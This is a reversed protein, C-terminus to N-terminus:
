KSKREYMDACKKYMFMFVFAHTEKFYFFLYILASSSPTWIKTGEFSNVFEM